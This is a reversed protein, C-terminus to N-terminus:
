FQLGCSRAKFMIDKVTVQFVVDISLNIRVFYQLNSGFYSNMASNKMPIIEGGLIDLFQQLWKKIYFQLITQM